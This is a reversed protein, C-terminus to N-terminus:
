LFRYIYFDLTSRSLASLGTFIAYLLITLMLTKVRGVRDGMVGFGIGGVAWGIMFISTAIGAAEGIDANQQAGIVSEATVPGTAKTELQERLAPLRPDAAQVKAVLKEMAPRRALNFLQQDMCDMDWALCCVIFVFWQYGTLTKYWPAGAPAAHALAQEIDAM